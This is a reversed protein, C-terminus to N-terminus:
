LVTYSHIISIIPDLLYPSISSKTEEKFKNLDTMLLDYGKINSLYKLDLGAELLAIVKHTNLLYDYYKNIDSVGAEIILKAADPNYYKGVYMLLHLTHGNEVCDRLGLKLMLSICGTHGGRAANNVCEYYTNYSHPKHFDLNYKNLHKTVYNVIYEVIPFNGHSCAGYLGYKINGCEVYGSDIFTKLDCNSCYKYLEDNQLKYNNNNPTYLTFNITYVGDINTVPTGMEFSTFIQPLGGDTKEDCLANPSQGSM